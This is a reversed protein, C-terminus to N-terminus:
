QLLSFNDSFINGYFRYKKKEMKVEENYKFIPGKELNDLIEKVFKVNQQSSYLKPVLQRNHLARASLRGKLDQNHIDSFSLPSDREPKFIQLHQVFNNPRIGGYDIGSVIGCPTGFNHALNYFGLDHGLYFKAEGCLFIDVEPPREVQTLDFFGANELLLDAKKNGLRFVKLGQDLLYEIATIYKEIDGLQNDLFQFVIFDQNRSFGYPKLFKIAVDSTVEEVKFPHPKIFKQVLDIDADYFFSSTAGYSSKSSQYFLGDYPATEISPEFVTCSDKDLVVEFCSNLYPVLASAFRFDKFQHLPFVPKQALIGSRVFFQTLAAQDVLDCINNTLTEFSFIPPTGFQMRSFERLNKTTDLYILAIENALSFLGLDSIQQYMQKVVNKSLPYTQAFEEAFKIIKPGDGTQFIQYFEKSFQRHDFIFKQARTLSQFSPLRKEPKNM